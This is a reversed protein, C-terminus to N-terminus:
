REQYRELGNRNLWDRVGRQRIEPAAQIADMLDDASDVPSDRAPDEPEEPGPPFIWFVTKMGYRWAGGALPIFALLFAWAGYHEYILQM